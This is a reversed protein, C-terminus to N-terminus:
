GAILLMSIMGLAPHSIHDVVVSESPDTQKDTVSERIALDWDM